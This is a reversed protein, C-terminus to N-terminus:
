LLSYPQTKLLHINPSRLIASGWFHATRCCCQLDVVVTISRSTTIARYTFHKLKQRLSSNRVACARVPPICPHHTLEHLASSLDGRSLV